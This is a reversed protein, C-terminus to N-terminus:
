CIGQMVSHQCLNLVMSVKAFIGLGSVVGLVIFLSAWLPVEGLVEDAPLSFIALIEGFFIAFMPCISGGVAAGLLGLVIIWWEKANLRLIRHLPVVPIEKDWEEQMRKLSQRKFESNDMSVVSTMRQLGVPSGPRNDNEQQSSSNRRSSM